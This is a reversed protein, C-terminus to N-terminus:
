MYPYLSKEARQILDELLKTYETGEARLNTAAYIWERISMKPNHIPCEIAMQVCSGDCDVIDEGRVEHSALLTKLSAKLKEEALVLGKLLKKEAFNSDYPTEDAITEQLIAHIKGSFEKFIDDITENMYILGKTTEM